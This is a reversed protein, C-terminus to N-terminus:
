LIFVAQSLALASNMSNIWEKSKCSYLLANQFGIFIALEFSISDLECVLIQYKVTVAYSVISWFCCVATQANDLVLKYM